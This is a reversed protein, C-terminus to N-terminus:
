FRLQVGLSITDFAEQSRYTINGSFKESFFKRARLEYANTEDLRGVRAGIGLSSDMYFDGGIFINNGEDADEFSAELNIFQGNGIATVYKANINPDYGEDHTYATTVLLGDIPTLGISTYWDSDNDDDYNSRTAGASVYLFNEPIFFEAGVNYIDADLMFEDDNWSTHFAGAYINSNKGLYAAEALPVNVTEVADFYFTGLGGYTTSKANREDVDVQSAQVNLEAKYPEAVAAVSLFAGCLGMVKMLKM